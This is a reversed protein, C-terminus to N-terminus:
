KHIDLFFPLVSDSAFLPGLDPTEQSFSILRGAVQFLLTFKAASTVLTAPNAEDIQNSAKM